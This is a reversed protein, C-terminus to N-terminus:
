GRSVPTAVLTTLIVRLDTPETTAAADRYVVELAQRQGADLREFAARVRHAETSTARDLRRANRAARRGLTTTPRAPRLHTAEPASHLRDVARRYAIAMIWAMASDRDADFVASARWEELTSELTADDHGVIRLALGYVRTSAVDSLATGAAQDAVTSRYLLVGHEHSGTGTVIDVVPGRAELTRQGPPADTVHDTVTSM